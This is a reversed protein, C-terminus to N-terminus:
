VYKEKIYCNDSTEQKMKRDHLRKLLKRQMAAYRSLKTPITIAYEECSGYQVLEKLGGVKPM